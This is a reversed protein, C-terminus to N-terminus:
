LNPRIQRQSGGSNRFISLCLTTQFHAIRQLIRSTQPPNKQYSLITLGLLGAPKQYDTQRRPRLFRLM